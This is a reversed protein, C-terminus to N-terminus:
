SVVEHLLLQSENGPYYKQLYTGLRQYLIITESQDVKFTHVDDRGLINERFTLNFGDVDKGEAIFKGLRSYIEASQFPSLGYTFHEGAEDFHVDLM